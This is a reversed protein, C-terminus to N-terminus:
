LLYLWIKREYYILFTMHQLFFNYSKFYVSPKYQSKLIYNLLWFFKPPFCSCTLMCFFVGFGEMTKRENEFANIKQFFTSVTIKKKTQCFIKDCPNIRNLQQFRKFQKTEEATQLKLSKLLCRM